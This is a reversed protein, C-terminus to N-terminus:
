GGSRRADLQDDAAPAIRREPREDEDPEAPDEGLDEVVDRDAERRDVGGVGGRHEVLQAAGGDEVADPAPRPDVPGRDAAAITASPAQEDGVRRDSSISQLGTIEPGSPVAATSARTTSTGSGHGLWLRGVLRNQEALVVGHPTRRVRFRGALSLAM